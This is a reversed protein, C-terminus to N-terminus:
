LFHPQRRESLEADLMVDVFDLDRSFRSLSNNNQSRGGGIGGAGTPPRRWTDFLLNAHWMTDLLLDTESFLPFIFKSNVAQAIGELELIVKKLDDMESATVRVRRRPSHQMLPGPSARGSSISGSRRERHSNDRSLNQDTAARWQWVTRKIARLRRELPDVMNTKRLICGECVRYRKRLPEGEPGHLQPLRLKAHACRACFVEGCARCHHRRTIATFNANCGRCTPRTEDKQWFVAGTASVADGGLFPHQALLPDLEGYAPFVMDACECSQCLGM